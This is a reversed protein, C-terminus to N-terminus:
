NASRIEAIIEEFVQTFHEWTAQNGLEELSINPYEDKVTSAMGPIALVRELLDDYGVMTSYPRVERLARGGLFVRRTGAMVGFPAVRSRSSTIFPLFREPLAKDEPATFTGEMGQAESWAVIQRGVREHVEGFARLRGLWEEVAEPTAPITRTEAKPRSRSPRKPVGGPDCHQCDRPPRGFRQYSWMRLAGIEEACLKVFQRTWDKHDGIHRTISWCEARHLVPDDFSGRLANIVFGGPHRRSWQLYGADDDEFLVVDEDSM